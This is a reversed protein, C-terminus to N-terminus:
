RDQKGIGSVTSPNPAWRRNRRRTRDPLHPVGPRSATPSDVTPDFCDPSMGIAIAGLHQLGRGVARGIAVLLRRGRREHRHRLM